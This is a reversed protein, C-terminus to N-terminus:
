QYIKNVNQSLALIQALLLHNFKPPALVVAASILAVKFDFFSTKRGNVGPRASTQARQTNKKRTKM